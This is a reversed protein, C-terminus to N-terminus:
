RCTFEIEVRRNDISEVGDGTMLKLRREGWGVPTVPTDPFENRLREAVKEARLMSLDRNFEDTGPTDTHGSIRISCDSDRWKPSATSVIDDLQRELDPGEFSGVTNFRVLWINRTLRDDATLTDYVLSGLENVAKGLGTGLEGGAGKGFAKLFEGLFQGLFIQKTATGGDLLKDGVDFGTGILDFITGGGDSTSGSTPYASLLQEFEDCPNETIGAHGSRGGGPKSERHNSGQQTVGPPMVSRQGADLETRNPPQDGPAGSSPPKQVSEKRLVCVCHEFATQDTCLSATAANEKSGRYPTDQSTGPRHLDKQLLTQGASLTRRTALGTAQAINSVPTENGGYRDLVVNIDEPILPVGVQLNRAAQALVRVPKQEWFLSWAILYTAGLALLLTCGVILKPATVIDKFIARKM